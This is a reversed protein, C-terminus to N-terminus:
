LDEKPFEYYSRVDATLRPEGRALLKVTLEYNAHKRMHESLRETMEICDFWRTVEELVLAVEHIASSQSLRLTTSLDKM